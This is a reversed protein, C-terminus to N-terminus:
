LCPSAVSVGAGQEIKISLFNHGTPNFQEKSFRVWKEEGAGVGDGAMRGAVVMRWHSGAFRCVIENRFSDSLFDLKFGGYYSEGRCRIPQFM